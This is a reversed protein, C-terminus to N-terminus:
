AVEELIYKGKDDLGKVKVIGKVVRKLTERQIDIVLNVAKSITKQQPMVSVESIYSELQELAELPSNAHITCLGGPHGTNWAKLLNLAAGDRIEGIVIRTPTRRLTSKLLDRISVTDSTRLFLRDKCDCQLEQTDELIVIRELFNEQDQIEKMKKLLANALTTKGSGTGGDILINQHNKIAECIVQFQNQSMIENKVYEELSFIKLAKKRINFASNANVPPISGEFRYGTEPLEGSIIPSYSNVETGIHNAILLIINKSRQPDIEIGTFVRGKSFTDVWLKKDDNLYVETVDDDDLYKNIDEGFTVKLLNAISM